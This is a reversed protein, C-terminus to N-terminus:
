SAFSYPPWPGTVHVVLDGGAARAFGAALERYRAEDAPEVLHAVSVLEPPSLYQVRQDAAM